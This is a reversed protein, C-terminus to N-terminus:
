MLMGKAKGEKYLQQGLDMISQERQRIAEEDRPVDLDITDPVM